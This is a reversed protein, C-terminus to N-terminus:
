PAGIMGCKVCHGLMPGLEKRMLALRLVNLEEHCEKREFPDCISECEERKKNIQETVRKMAPLWAKFCRVCHYIRGVLMGFPDNRTV